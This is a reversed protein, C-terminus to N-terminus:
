YNNIVFIKNDSYMILNNNKLKIMDYIEMKTLSFNDYLEFSKDKFKYLKIDNNMDKAFFLDKTFNCLFIINMEDKIVDYIKERFFGFFTRVKNVEIIENNQNISKMNQNIDYIDFKFEGNKVFLYKDNKFFSINNNSLSVNEEFKNLNTLIDKEIDYISLSYTFNCYYTQSCHGGCKYNRQFLVLKNLEIEIANKVEVDIKHKSLLKYNDNEKTYINIGFSSCSILNGNKLQCIINIKYDNKNNYSHRYSFMQYLDDEDKTEHKPENITQYIIYKNDSLKYFFINKSTWFVLDSNKLEIFNIIKKDYNPNNISSDNIEIEIENIKRFTKSSYISLSNNNFLIGIRSKSLEKITIIKKFLFNMKLILQFFLPKKLGTETLVKKNESDKQIIEEKGKNNQNQKSKEQEKRKM